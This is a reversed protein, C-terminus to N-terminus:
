ARDCSRAASAVDEGDQGCSAAFGCDVLEGAQQSPPRRHDDRRQDRQLFVLQRVKAGRPEGCEDEVRLLRRSRPRGCEGRGALGVGEHEDRRLLQRVGLRPVRKSARSRPEEDDVFRVQDALPAM